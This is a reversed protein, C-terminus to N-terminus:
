GNLQGGLSLLMAVLVPVSVLIGLAFRRERLLEYLRSRSESTHVIFSENDVKFEIRRELVRLDRNFHIQRYDGLYYPINLYESVNQVQIVSSLTAMGSRINYEYIRFGIYAVAPSILLEPWGASSGSLANQLNVAILGLALMGVVVLDGTSTRDGKLAVWRASETEMTRSLELIDTKQEPTADHSGEECHRYFDKLNQHFESHRLIFDARDAAQDLDVASRILQSVVRKTSNEIKGNTYRKLAIVLQTLRAGWSVLSVEEDRARQWQRALFFGAMIGFLEIPPKADPIVAFSTSLYDRYFIVFATYLFVISAGLESFFSNFARTTIVSAFVIFVLGFMFNPQLSDGLVVVQLLTSLIPTCYVLVYPLTSQAKSIAETWAVQAVAVTILGLIGAIMLAHIGFDDLEGRFVAIILSIPCAFVTGVIWIQRSSWGIRKILVSTGMYMAAAVAALLGLMYGYPDAVSVTGGPGSVLAACGMFGLLLVCYDVVTPASRTSRFIVYNTFVLLIPWLYNAINAQLRSESLMATYFLAHYVFLSFVFFGLLFLRKFRSARLRPEIAGEQIYREIEQKQATSINSAIQPAFLQSLLAILEPLRKREAIVLFLAAFGQVMGALLFPNANGELSGVLTASLSWCVVAVLAAITSSSMLGQSASPTM